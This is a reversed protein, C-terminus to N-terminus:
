STQPQTRFNANRIFEQIITNHSTCARPKLYCPGRRLPESFPKRSSLIDFLNFFIFSFPSIRLFSLAPVFVPIYLACIRRSFYLSCSILCPGKSYSLNFLDILQPVKKGPMWHQLLCQLMEFRYLRYLIVCIGFIIPLEERRPWM